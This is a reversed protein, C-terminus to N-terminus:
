GGVRGDQAGARAATEGAATLSVGSVSRRFLPYGLEGELFQLRRSITPQGVRLAAAARSMSRTEAVTLFVRWDEWDTNM